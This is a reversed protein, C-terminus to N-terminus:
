EANRGSFPLLYFAGSEFIPEGIYTFILKAETSPLIPFTINKYEPNKIGAKAYLCNELNLAFSQPTEKRLTLGSLLPESFYEKRDAVFSSKISIREYDKDPVVTCLLNGDLDVSLFVSPASVSFSTSDPSHFECLYKYFCFGLAASLIIAYLCGFFLKTSNQKYNSQKHKNGFYYGCAPCFEAGEPVTTHCSICKM